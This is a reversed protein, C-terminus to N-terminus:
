KCKNGTSQFYARNECGIRSEQYKVQIIINKMLEVNIKQHVVEPGLILLWTNSKFVKGMKLLNLSWECSVPDSIHQIGNWTLNPNQKCSEVRIQYARSQFETCSKTYVSWELANDTDSEYFIM